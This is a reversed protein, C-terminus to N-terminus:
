NVRFYFNVCQVGRLTLTVVERGDKEFVDINTMLKGQAPPLSTLFEKLRLAMESRPTKPSGVVRAVGVKDVLQKLGRSVRFGSFTLTQTPQGRIYLTLGAPNGFREFVVAITSDVGCENLLVQLSKKGRIIKRAPTILALANVLTRSRPSPSRSTTIYVAPPNL